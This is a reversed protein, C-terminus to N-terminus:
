PAMLARAGFCASGLCLSPATPGEDAGSAAGVALLLWGISNRPRRAAILLGLIAVIPAQVFYPVAQTTQSDIAKWDLAILILNAAVLGLSCLGVGWALQVARTEWRGTM